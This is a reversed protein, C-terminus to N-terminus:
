KKVLCPCINEKGLLKFDELNDYIDVSRLECLGSLKCRDYKMNDVFYFPCLEKKVPMEDVLLRM